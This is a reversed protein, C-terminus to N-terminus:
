CTESSPLWQGVEYGSWHGEKTILTRGTGYDGLDIYLNHEVGIDSLTDEIIDSLETLPNVLSQAEEKTQPDFSKILAIIEQIKDM